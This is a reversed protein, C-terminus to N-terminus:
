SNRRLVLLFCAGSLDGADLFIDGDVAQMAQKSLALGHGRDYGENTSFGREFIKTALKDDVGDGSDQVEMLLEHEYQQISVRVEKLTNKSKLVAEIANQILNGLAMTVANLQEDTCPMLTDDLEIQLIINKEQAEIMKGVLLANLITYPQQNTFSYQQHKNIQDQEIFEVAEKVQHRKLLGLLLHMKNSFEHTQARQMKAQQKVHQLENIVQEYEDKKRLTYLAGERDKKVYLPKKSLIVTEEGLAMEVAQFESKETLRLPIIDSIDREMLIKEKNFFHYASPNASTITHNKTTTIIGDSTTELITQNLQYLRAIQKPEMDFLQKKMYISLLIACLVGILGVLISIRLWHFFVSDINEQVTSTMFGVSVIGIIEGDKKVPVKGRISKGLSGVRETIISEGKELVPTNDGGVMHFGIKDPETHSYRIGDMNGVVVYAAGINKRISEAIPQIAKSPDKDDFADIIDDTDAVLHAAQLAQKAIQKNTTEEIHHELLVLFIGCILFIITSFYLIMKTQFKMYIVVCDGENRRNYATKTM